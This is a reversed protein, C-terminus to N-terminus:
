PIGEDAECSNGTQMAISRVQVALSHTLYLSSGEEEERPCNGIRASLGTRMAIPDNGAEHCAADCTWLASEAPYSGTRAGGEYGFRTTASQWLKGFGMSRTQFNTANKAIACRNSLPGGHSSDM